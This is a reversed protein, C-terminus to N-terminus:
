SEPHGVKSLYLSIMVLEQNDLVLSANEHLAAEAWGGESCRVAQLISQQHKHHIAYSWPFRM